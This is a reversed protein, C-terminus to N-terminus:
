NNKPTLTCYSSMIARSYVTVSDSTLFMNVSNDWTQQLKAPLLLCDCL